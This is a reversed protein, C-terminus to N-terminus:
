MQCDPRVKEQLPIRLHALLRRQQEDPRSVRRLRLLKGDTTPLMIDGSKIQSLIRLAKAPSVDYDQDFLVGSNKLQHKLTVWLAYGLFAVLIHAQVRKKDHHWIPRVSLDGKIARFAAEAETLQIYMEWVKGADLEGLNFTRLLYTGDTLEAWKLREAHHWWRMTKQHRGKLEWRYFKGASPYRGLLRGVAVHIKKTEKIQGKEVRRRLGDLGKEMAKMVRRRMASEKERRGTSRAVVFTEHRKVRPVRLVEVEERVKEWSKSLLETELAKMESRRVGVVYPMKRRRLMRLNKESTVGRDFVWIRRARGYRREVANLIEKLTTVDRRNGDFVEYALPFGEASVVLAVVVQKCDSRHDRSYGRQAQPNGAAAGEFYTSTLDYLLLDYTIGFLEGYRKKLFTELAEKHEHMLDLCRYLRDTNIKEEAVELIDDLATQRYWTQEIRLESGPGCLRNIALVAAIRSWPVDADLGDLRQAYFRDLGLRRWLMWGAYVDGYDRPREWYVENLRVRAVNSEKPVEAADDGFLSLERSEGRGDIVEITKQWKSKGTGNIEGLYCVTRHRPGRDTRVTECISYYAHDKGDKFRSHTKLFM